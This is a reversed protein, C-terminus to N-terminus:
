HTAEERNLKQRTRVTEKIELSRKYYEITKNRENQARYYDGMADYVMFSRPYNNINLSYLAFAKDYEKENMEIEGFRNIIREPPLYAYGFHDSINKYHKTLMDVLEQTNMNSAEDFLIEENFNYWQFLFRIADYSAIFPVGNHNDNEYFTSEFNLGSAVSCTNSFQLITRMHESSKLTDALVTTLNLGKPLRNAMALYLSKCDFEKNELLLNVEKFFSLNNWRITPDIAIYNDFLEAHHILTNVVFLGGWSHGLITRYPTTPYKKDIFPILEKEIFTTFNEAGGSSPSYGVTSPTLDRIRNTNPIAVVIMEPSITNGNAVSLQQLMGTVSYFHVDGDLLYLVPFKKGPDEASRPVYVWISRGEGLTESYLSDVNGIIIQNEEVKLTQAFTGSQLLFLINSILLFKRVVGNNIYVM